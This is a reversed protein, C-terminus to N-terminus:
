AVNSVLTRENLISAFNTIQDKMHYKQSRARTRSWKTTPPDILKLDLKLLGTCSQPGSPPVESPTDYPGHRQGNCRFHKNSPRKVYLVVFGRM